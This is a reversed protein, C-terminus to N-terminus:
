KVFSFYIEELKSISKMIDYDNSNKYSQKSMNKLLNNNTLLMMMKESLDKVSYPDFLFGNNKVFYKSASDPSNAILIAKGCSMAELVVMGELEVLSPLVFIDCINYLKILDEDSVKGTFIVKNSVNLQKSLKELREKEIGDGVICVEFNSFKNEIQKVSKILLPINKEPDLRGVFLIKKTKESLGFKKYSKKVNQISFKNRNVGNSIVQTKTKLRRSKLIEESFKSPCIIIEAKNYIGLIYRYSLDILGKDARIKRFLFPFYPIWNEPQTHSHGVIKIGLKKAAIVSAIALPTPIMFHVLDIKEKKLIQKVKKPNPYAIYLRKNTKPIPFSPLRYIKMGNYKEFAQTNPYRSSIIIVKHGNESLISSFRLASVFSGATFNNIADCVIAINLKEMYLM